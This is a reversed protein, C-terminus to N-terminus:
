PDRNFFYNEKYFHVFFTNKKRLLRPYCWIVLCFSIGNKPTTVSRASLTILYINLFLVATHTNREERSFKHGTETHLGFAKFTYM